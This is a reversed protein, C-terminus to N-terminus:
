FCEINLNKDLIATDSHALKMDPNLEQTRSDM